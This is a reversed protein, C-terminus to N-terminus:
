SEKELVTKKRRWWVVVMVQQTEKEKRRRRWWVVVVMVELLLYVALVPVGVVGGAIASGLGSNGSLGAGGMIDVSIASPPHCELM